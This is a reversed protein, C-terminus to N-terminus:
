RRAIRNIHALGIDLPEEAMIALGGTGEALVRLSARANARYRLFQPSAEAPEGTSVRLRRADIAFIKVGARNAVAILGGLRTRVNEATADDFSLAAAPRYEPAAPKSGPEVGYGDSVYIVAKVPSSVKALNMVAEEATALSVAARYHAESPGAEDHLDREISTWDMASGSAAKFRSLLPARDTAPDVAITSPGTSVASSYDGRAVLADVVANLMTRLRASSQFEIHLDDIAILWIAPATQVRSAALPPGAAVITALALAAFPTRTLRRSSRKEGLGSAAARERHM